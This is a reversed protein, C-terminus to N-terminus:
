AAGLMREAVWARLQPFQDGRDPLGSLASGLQFVGGGEGCRHCYFVSGKYTASPHLDDHDPLPCRVRGGPLPESDTLAPIYVEAPISALAETGRHLDEPSRLLQCSESRTPRCKPKPRRSQFAAEDDMFRRVAIRVAHNRWMQDQVSQPLAHFLLLRDAGSLGPLPRQFIEFTQKNM